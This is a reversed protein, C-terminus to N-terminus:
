PEKRGAPWIKLVVSPHDNGPTTYEVEKRLQLDNLLGFHRAENREEVWKGGKIALLQDFSAWHPALWTLLKKLPAVARCVIAHYRFDELLDEARAHYVPISLGARHVIEELAKAKKTVSDCLSVQVDPRLIAIIVGPVGGGSGLDLIEDGPKLQGALALSDLVDRAVFKDYDTHRTLNLSQNMEWVIQAYKDLAAVIADDLPAGHATLAEQLTAFKPAPAPTPPPVENM